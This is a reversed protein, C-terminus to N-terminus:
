GMLDVYLWVGLTEKLWAPQSARAIVDKWHNARKIRVAVIKGV